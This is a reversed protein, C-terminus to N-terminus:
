KTLIDTEPYFVSLEAKEEGYDIILYGNYYSTAFSNRGIGYRESLFSKLSKFDEYAYNKWFPQPRIKVKTLYDFKLDDTYEKKLINKDKLYCLFSELNKNVSLKKDFYDYFGTFFDFWNEVANDKILHKILSVANQANWLWDLTKECKHITETDEKSLFDNKIIEYPENVSYLYNYMVANKRIETGRLMKLFGLQLEKCQLLFCKNFGDTFSSLTEFPLGAILDIHVACRGADNIMKVTKLLKGNDQIRNVSKIVLDNISQIGIELRFKGPLAENCLFSIVEDTFLGAEIEFQYVNDTKQLRKCIEIFKKPNINFTRDLFKICKFRNNEVFQLTNEIQEDGFVRVGKELSSLCYSCNFPCGRSLEAYIVRNKLDDSSYLDFICPVNNLNETVRPVAFPKEKTAISANNVTKGANLCDLFPLIIEEGEGCLIYDFCDIFEQPEYSVEPGGAFVIKEPYRKKIERSLEKMVSINWIYCSLGIVDYCHLKSIINNIEDKVTFESFTSQYKEEAIKSLLRVAPSTHIYKSNVAVFVVKINIM